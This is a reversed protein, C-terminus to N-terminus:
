ENYPKEVLGLNYRYNTYDQELDNVKRRIRNYIKYSHPRISTSYPSFNGRLYKLDKEIMVISAEMCYEFDEKISKEVEIREEKSLSNLYKKKHNM